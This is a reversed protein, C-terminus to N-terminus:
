PNDFVFKGLAYDWKLYADSDPPTTGIEFDHIGGDDYVGQLNHVFIGDSFLWNTGNCVLLCSEYQALTLQEGNFNLPSSNEEISALGAGVNILRYWMGAKDTAVPLNITLATGKNIIIEGMEEMTLDANDTKTTPFRRKIYSM